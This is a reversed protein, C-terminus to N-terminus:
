QRRRRLVIQSPKPTFSGFNTKKGKLITKRTKKEKEKKNQNKKRTKLKSFELSTFNYETLVVSECLVTCKSFFLLYIGSHKKNKEKKKKKSTTFKRNHLSLSSSTFVSPLYGWKCVVIAHFCSM